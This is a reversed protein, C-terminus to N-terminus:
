KENIKKNEPSSNFSKLKKLIGVTIKISYCNCYLLTCYKTTRLFLILNCSIFQFILIITKHLRFQIQKEKIFVIIKDMHLLYKGINM